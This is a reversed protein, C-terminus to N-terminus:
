SSPSFWAAIQEMEGVSDFLNGTLFPVARQEAATVSYGNGGLSACAFYICEEASYQSIAGGEM